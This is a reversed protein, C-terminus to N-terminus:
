PNPPSEETAPAVREPSAQPTTSIEDDGGDDLSAGPVFRQPSAQPTTVFEDDASPAAFPNRTTAPAAGAASAPSPSRQPTTQTAGVDGPLPASSGAPGMSFPDVDDFLNGEPVVGDLQLPVERVRLEVVQDQRVEEMYEAYAADFREEMMMARLRQKATVYPVVSGSTKATVKLIRYGGEASIPDSVSGVALNFAVEELDPSLTGQSLEGLDGGSAATPGSSHTRALSAFDEGARARSVIDQALALGGAEEAIFIGQLTVTAAKTFEGIKEEYAAKLDDETVTIRPEVERQIIMRKTWSKEINKRLDDLTIGESALAEQFQEESEIKNDTKINEVIEDIFEPRLGLGNDVARQILLIDDIAEQLLRANNQRLFSGIQDPTIRAAQAATIQREQFESLTIIDGNVKAIIREIIEGQAPAPAWALLGSTLLLLLARENLRRM